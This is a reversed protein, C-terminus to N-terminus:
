LVAIARPRPELGFNKPPINIQYMLDYPCEGDSGGFLGNNEWWNWANKGQRFGKFGTGFGQLDETIKATRGDRMMFEAPLIIKKLNIIEQKMPKQIPVLFAPDITIEDAIPPPQITSEFLIRESSRGTQIGQQFSINGGTELIIQQLAEQHAKAIAEGFTDLVTSVSPFNDEEM